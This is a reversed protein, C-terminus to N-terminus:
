MTDDHGSPVAEKAKVFVLGVTFKSHTMLMVDRVSCKGSHALDLHYLLLLALRVVEERVLDNRDGGRAVVDVQVAEGNADHEERKGRM